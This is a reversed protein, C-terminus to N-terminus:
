QTPVPRKSERDFRWLGCTARGDQEHHYIGPLVTLGRGALYACIIEKARDLNEGHHPEHDAFVAWCEGVILTCALVENTQEDHATLDIMYRRLPGAQGGSSDQTIAECRVFGFERRKLEASFDDLTLFTLTVPFPQHTNM